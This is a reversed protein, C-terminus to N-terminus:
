GAALRRSTHIGAVDLVVHVTSAAPNAADLSTIAEHVPISGRVKTVMAHRAVFGFRSHAPDITYAGTLRSPFM